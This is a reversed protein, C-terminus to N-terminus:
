MDEAMVEVREYEGDVVQFFGIGGLACEGNEQCSLVGSLGQIEEESGYALMAELLDERDIVLQGDDNIEGVEEMANLALVTMDYAYAHFAATPELGYEEIYTDVFEAYEPSDTPAPSSAYVGEAFDGALNIFESTQIGDAGMFPMEELGVDARQEVLRAAEAPFGGFYILGAESDAVNSLLTRFETDGVTVQDSVVVEGGMAEFNETVVSVLGEGYPSGDNITAIKDIGLENFIFAAAQQGQGDDNPTTRLFTEFGEDESTLDVATCSSSLYPVSAEDFIPGAARCASSCTPGLVVPVGQSVFYNAIAQGGEASCQDDQIDLELEFEVDSVTLTFDREVLALEAGRTIDDGLPVLGEGSLISAHGLVIPDGPEVVIVDDQAVAVTALLALLAILILSLALKNRM